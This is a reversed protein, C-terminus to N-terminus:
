HGAVVVTLTGNALPVSEVGAASEPGWVADDRGPPFVGSLRKIGNATEIALPGGLPAVASAFRYAREVAWDARIVWDAALPNPAGTADAEAQPRETATGAILDHAVKAALEGGLRMLEREFHPLRADEPIPVRTQALIPGADLEQDMRHITVGAETDGSQITWFVPEPGRWRPLLSPHVNLVGRRPIALIEAPLRWPFCAVIAVDADFAHLEAAIQSRASRLRPGLWVVPIDAMRAIAVPDDPLFIPL